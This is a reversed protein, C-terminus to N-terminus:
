SMHSFQRSVYKSRGTEGLNFDTEVVETRQIVRKFLGQTAKNIM